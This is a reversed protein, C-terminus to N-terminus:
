SYRRVQQVNIRRDSIREAIVRLHFVLMLYIALQGCQSGSAIDATEDYMYTCM